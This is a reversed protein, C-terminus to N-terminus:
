INIIPEINKAILKIKLRLPNEVRYLNKWFIHYGIKIGDKLRKKVAMNISAINVLNILLFSFYINIYILKKRTKKM